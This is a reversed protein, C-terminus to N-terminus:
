NAGMIIIKILTYIKVKTDNEVIHVYFIHNIIIIYVKHKTKFKCSSVITTIM